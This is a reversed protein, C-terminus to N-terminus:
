GRAFRGDRLFGVTQECVDRRIIIRTHGGPVVLHDREGELHTQEVSVKNDRRAAIIGVDIDPPCGLQCVYSQEDCSLEPLPKWLWAFYPAVTRAINSGRNPPALMVIRGLKSPRYQLLAARVVIGGMSHTVCHITGIDTREDLRRLLEALRNAHAAIGALTSPYDYYESTLGARRLHRRLRWMTAAISALGHILLVHQRGAAGPLEQNAEHHSTSM